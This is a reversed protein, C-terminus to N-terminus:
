PLRLSARVLPPPLTGPLAAAPAALALLGSPDLSLSWPSPSTDSAGDRSRKAHSAYSIVLGATAGAFPLALIKGGVNGGTVYEVGVAALAGGVGGALMMAEVTNGAAAPFRQGAVLRDGFVLGIGGGVLAEKATRRRQASGDRSLGGHVVGVSTCLVTAAEVVKADGKTWHSYRALLGGTVQGAGAGILMGTALRRHDRRLQDPSPIGAPWDFSAGEGGYGPPGALQSAADGALMGVDGMLRVTAVDDLTMHLRKALAYDLTAEGLSAAVDPAGLHDASGSTAQRFLSGHAVGRTAGYLAFAIGPSMHPLHLTAGPSRLSSRPALSDPDVRALAPRVPPGAALAATLLLTAARRSM